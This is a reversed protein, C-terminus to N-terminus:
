ASLWRRPVQGAPRLPVDHLRRALRWVATERKVGVNPRAQSCHPVPELRSAGPRMAEVVATSEPSLRLTASEFCRPLDFLLESKAAADARLPIEDNDPVLPARARDFQLRQVTLSPRVLRELPSGGAHCKARLGCHYM